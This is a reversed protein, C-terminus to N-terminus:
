QRHMQGPELITARSKLWVCVPGVEIENDPNLYKNSEYAYVTYGKIPYTIKTLM